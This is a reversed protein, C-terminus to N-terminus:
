QQMNHTPTACHSSTPRKGRCDRSVRLGLCGDQWRQHEGFLTELCNGRSAMALGVENTNVFRVIPFAVISVDRSRHEIAKSVWSGTEIARISCSISDRHTLNRNWAVVGSRPGHQCLGFAFPDRQNVGCCAAANAINGFHSDSDLGRGVANKDAAVPAGQRRITAGLPPM